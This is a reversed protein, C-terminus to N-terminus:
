RLKEYDQSIRAYATSIPAVPIGAYMGALLLLAHEISNDSITMIPTDATLGMDLLAAAVTRVQRLAEAYSLKRWANSVDREALFAENPRKAAWHELMAGLTKYNQTLELPSRLLIDGNARDTRLVAPPAFRDAAYIDGPRNALPQSNM